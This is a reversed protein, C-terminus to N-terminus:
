QPSTSAKRPPMEANAAAAQTRPIWFSESFHNVNAKKRALRHIRMLGAPNDVMASM